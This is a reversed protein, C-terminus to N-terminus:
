DEKALENVIEQIGASVYGYLQRQRPTLLSPDGGQPLIYHKIRVFFELEKTEM